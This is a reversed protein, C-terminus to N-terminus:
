APLFARRPAAGLTQMPTLYLESLAESDLIEAATGLRHRGDGYLLLVRDAFRDALTPDHLTAIISAGQGSLDRFVRLVQIQHLPDLHNSPEDLLYIQPAQVLLAAMAVRRQEGGSLTTVLRQAFEALGLRALASHAIALDDPGERQWFSLHPHRGIMVSELVTMALSEERDQPLLGLQRAVQRRPLTRVDAGQLLVSGDRPAALGALAHLTLSKGCGNRGLIALFEGRALSMSLDRVLVRSGAAITLAACALPTM